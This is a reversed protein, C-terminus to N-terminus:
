AIGSDRSDTSAKTEEEAEEKEEKETSEADGHQMELRVQVCSDYGRVAFM